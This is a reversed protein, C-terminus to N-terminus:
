ATPIAAAVEPAEAPATADPLLVHFTAGGGRNNVAWMRGGHADVISRCIALGLGLGHSKSTVFPQFVEDIPEKTIGIGNDSVTIRVAGGRASTTIVLTRSPTPNDTM